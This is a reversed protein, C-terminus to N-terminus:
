RHSIKYQVTSGHINGKDDQFQLEAWTLTVIVADCSQSIQKTIGVGSSKTFAQIIPLLSVTALAPAEDTHTYIIKSPM